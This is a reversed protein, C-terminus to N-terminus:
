RRQPDSSAVPRMPLSPPRSMRPTSTEAQGVSEALSSPSLLFSTSGIASSRSHRIWTLRYLSIPGFFIRSITSSVTGAPNGGVGPPAQSGDRRAGSSTPSAKSLSSMFEGSSAASRRRRGGPLSPRRVPKPNTVTTPLRLPRCARERCRDRRDRTPGSPWVRSTLPERPPRELPSARAPAATTDEFWAEAPQFPLLVLGRSRDRPKTMTPPVICGVSSKASGTQYGGQWREAATM